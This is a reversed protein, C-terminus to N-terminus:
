RRRDDKSFSHALLACTLLGKWGEFQYLAYLGRRFRDCPMRRWSIGCRRVTRTALYARLYGNTFSFMDGTGVEVSEVFGLEAWRRLARGWRRWLMCQCSACAGKLNKENCRELVISDERSDLIEFAEHQSQSFELLNSRRLCRIDIPIEELSRYLYHGRM